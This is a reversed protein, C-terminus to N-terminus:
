MKNLYIDSWLCVISEEQEGFHTMGVHIYSKSLFVASPAQVSAELLGNKCTPEFKFNFSGVWIKDGKYFDFALAELGHGSQPVWM